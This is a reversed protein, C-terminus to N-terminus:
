IFLHSKVQSSKERSPELLCHFQPLFHCWYKNHDWSKWPLLITIDSRRLLRMQKLIDSQNVATTM